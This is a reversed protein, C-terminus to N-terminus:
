CTGYNCRKSPAYAVENCDGMRFSVHRGSSESRGFPTNEFQLKELVNTNVAAIIWRNICMGDVGM